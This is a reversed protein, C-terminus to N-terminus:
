YFWDKKNQLIEANTLVKYDDISHPSEHRPLGLSQIRDENPETDNTSIGEATEIEEDISEGENVQM